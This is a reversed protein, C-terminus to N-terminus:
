SHVDHGNEVSPLLPFVKAVINSIYLLEVTFIFDGVDNFFKIWLIYVVVVVFFVLINHGGCFKRKYLDVITLYKM